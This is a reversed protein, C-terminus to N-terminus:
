DIQEDGVGADLADYRERALARSDVALRPTSESSAAMAAPSVEPVPSRATTRESLEDTSTALLGSKAIQAELQSWDVRPLTATLTHWEVTYAAGPVNTVAFPVETLFENAYRVLPRLQESNIMALVLGQPPSHPWLNYLREVMVVPVKARQAMTHVVSSADSVPPLLYFPM